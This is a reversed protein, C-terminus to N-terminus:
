LKQLVYWGRKGDDVFDAAEYGHAFASQMAQRLAIQWAKAREIHDRKLAALQYPIEVLYYPATLSSPQHLQFQGSDDSSLLFEGAAYDDLSQELTHQAAATVPEAELNWNAELRDSPMGANIGDTMVGYFNVHYTSSITKLLRLNFNANGRQLPDFTWAIVKYGNELAWRRQAQKLGFGIGKNQHSPIVGAMHSWLIPEKDRLAALGLAFGVLEGDHDARIVVGGSHIVAFLMNHPITETLPMSWVVSQLMVMAKLEDPDDVARYETM